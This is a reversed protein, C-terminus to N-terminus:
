VVYDPLTCLTQVRSAYGTKKRADACAQCCSSCVPAIPLSFRLSHTTRWISESVCTSRVTAAAAANARDVPRGNGAVDSLNEGESGKGDIACAGTIGLPHRTSAPQTSGPHTRRHQLSAVALCLRKTGGFHNSQTPGPDHLSGRIGSLLCGASAGAQISHGTGRRM